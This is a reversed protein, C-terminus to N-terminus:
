QSTIKRAVAEASVKMDPWKSGQPFYLVLQQMALEGSENYEDFGLPLLVTKADEAIIKRIQKIAPIKYKHPVGGLDVQVEYLQTFTGGWKGEDFRKLRRPSSWVEFKNM